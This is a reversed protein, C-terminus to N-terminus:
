LPSLGKGEYENASITHISLIMGNRDSAVHQKYGFYCKNGKKLWKGEKDVGNPYIRKLDQTEEIEKEERDNPIEYTPNKDVYPSETITADLLSRGAQLILKHKKLQKNIKNLLKDMKNLETLEKRYRSLTSQDPATDEEKLGCFENASISDNVM